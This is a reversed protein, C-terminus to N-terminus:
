NAELSEDRKEQTYDILRANLQDCVPRSWDDWKDQSTEAVAYLRCAVAILVLAERYLAIKDIGEEFTAGAQEAMRTITELTRDRLEDTIDHAAVTMKGMKM